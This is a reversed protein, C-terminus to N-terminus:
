KKMKETTDVIIANVKHPKMITKGYSSNMILKYVMQIPNKEAKKKVYLSINLLSNNKLIDDKHVVQSLGDISEFKKFAWDTLSRLQQDVFEITLREM